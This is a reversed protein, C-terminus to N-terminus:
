VAHHRDYPSRLTSGSTRAGSIFTVESRTLQRLREALPQGIRAGLVLAGAVHGGVFAPTVSIQYPAGERVAIGAGPHGGLAGRVLPGPLTGPRSDLGVSAVVLGREDLVEFLDQRTISNFDRAVGAVTNRFEENAGGGPLTLTSFFRPDQVLVQGAVVLEETRAALM